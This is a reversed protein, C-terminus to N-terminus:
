GRPTLPIVVITNQIYLYKGFLYFDITHFYTTIQLLYIHISIILGNLSRYKMKSYNPNYKRSNIMSLNGGTNRCKENEWM